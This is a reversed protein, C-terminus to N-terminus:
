SSAMASRVTKLAGRLEKADIQGPASAEGATAFTICSGMCQACIRTVVGAPGMAIGIMPRDLTEGTRTLVYAAHMAEARTRTMVAAKCVDAGLRQQKRLWYAAKEMDGIEGFEHSSGVVIMDADHAYGAIRVFAEEGASLECDVADAAKQRCVERLLAEYAEADASGNGGDRATRLTFLLPISQAHARVRRCAEIAAGADPMADVSDMRLEIVDAQAQAAREASAALEELSKGMVPICVRPEDASLALGGIRVIKGSQRM